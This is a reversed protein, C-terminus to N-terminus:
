KRGMLFDAPLGHDDLSRDPRVPRDPRDTLPLPPQQRVLATADAVHTLPVTPVFQGTQDDYTGVWWLSFDTPYRGVSTNLDNALEQFSRLAAGDTAEFFPRNYILAKNDYVSYARTLM